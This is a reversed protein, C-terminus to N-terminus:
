HDNKLLNIKINAIDMKLLHEFAFTLSDISGTTYAQLQHADTATDSLLGDEILRDQLHKAVAFGTDIIPLPQQNQTLTSLIEEIQPRVFPYHTCGLVITDANAALLPTLYRRLLAMTEASRLEGQEIQNVLGTCAQGVFQVGSALSLQNELLRFKESALTRQTALVGVVRSRSVNVAPKLGPEMGIIILAPFKQRLVKIAAATATNCAVVLAKIHQELLYDTIRLCRETIATETKEGYPAYGSDAFYILKEQPLSAHIHKLVSLGGVGSDFIGIATDSRLTM